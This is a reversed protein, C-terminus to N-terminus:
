SGLARACVSKNKDHQFRLTHRYQRASRGRWSRQCCTCSPLSTSSALTAYSLSAPKHAHDEYLTQVEHQGQREAALRGHHGRASRGPSAQRGHAAGFRPACCWVAHHQGSAARTVLLRFNAL